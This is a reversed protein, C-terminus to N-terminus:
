EHAAMSVLIREESHSTGRFGTDSRVTRRYWRKAFPLLLRKFSSHNYLTRLFHRFDSQSAKRILYRHGMSGCNEFIFRNVLSAELRLKLEKKRLHDYGAGEMLSKAALYGSQIAYRMGFGLLYDQFGASEGIHIRNRDTGADSMFFNGYGNFRAPESIDVEVVHRFFSLTKEFCENGRRFDRFLVTALTGRGNCVVLYAYGGPAIDNNLVFVAQHDMRTCFTIGFAVMNAYRPGTAVITGGDRRELKRNFLIEAGASLAQEKLGLDFATAGAGRQVLYFAPKASKMEVPNMGPAHVWVKSYPVFLFNTKIGVEKLLETIDEKSSWNELGEFDGHFRHGVDPHKEYVRVKRGQRALVIAATLGAPGAGAINVVGGDVMSVGSDMLVPLTKATGAAGVIGDGARTM